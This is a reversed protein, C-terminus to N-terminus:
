NSTMELICFNNSFKEVASSQRCLEEMQSYSIIEMGIKDISSLYSKIFDKRNSGCFEKAKPDFLENADSLSKEASESLHLLIKKLKSSMFKHNKIKENLMQICSGILILHLSMSMVNLANIGRPIEPIDGDFTEIDEMSKVVIKKYVTEKKM